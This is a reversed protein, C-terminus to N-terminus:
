EEENDMRTLMEIDDINEELWDISCKMSKYEKMMSKAIEEYHISYLQEDPMARLEEKSYSECNMLIEHEYDKRTKNM